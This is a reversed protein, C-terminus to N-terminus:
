SRPSSPLHFDVGRNDNQQTTATLDLEALAIKRRHGPTLDVLTDGVIAYNSVELQHGDKFVLITQPEDAIPESPQSAQVSPPATQLSSSIESDHNSRGGPYQDSGPGRRDFITPGGQYQDPTENARQEAQQEDLSQQADSSEYDYPYYPVAYVAGGPNAMRHHRRGHEAPNPNRPFLPNICCNSGTFLRGGGQHPQPVAIRGTSTVSAPIGPAGTHGGFGFSTVSAPAGQASASPIFVALALVALVSALYIRNLDRRLQPLM